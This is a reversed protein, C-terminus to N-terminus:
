EYELDEFSELSRMIGEHWLKGLDFDRAAAKRLADPTRAHAANPQPRRQAPREADVRLLQDPCHHAVHQTAALVQPQRKRLRTRFFAPKQQVQAHGSRQAECFGQGRCALMVVELQVRGLARQPQRVRAAEAGHQPRARRFGAQGAPQEGPQPALREIRREVGGRQM